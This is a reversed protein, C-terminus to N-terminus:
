KLPLTFVAELGGDVHNELKITGSHMEVIRSVIALGLGSGKGGRAKDGRAFPQFLRQVDLDAIGKGHDRISVIIQENDKKCHVLVPAKGYRFANEIM